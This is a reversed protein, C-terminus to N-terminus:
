FILCFKKSPSASLRRRAHLIAHAFNNRWDTSCKSAPKKVRRAFYKEASELEPKRCSPATDLYRPVKFAALHPQLIGLNRAAARNAAHGNSQPCHPRVEGRIQDPVAIV